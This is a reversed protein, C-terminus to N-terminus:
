NLILLVDLTSDRTLPPTTTIASTPGYVDPRAPSHNNAWPNVPFPDFALGSDHRYPLSSPATVSYSGPVEFASGFGPKLGNSPEEVLMGPDLWYNFDVHTADGSLESNLAEGWDGGQPYEFSEYHGPPLM